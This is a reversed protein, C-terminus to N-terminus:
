CRYRYLMIRFYTECRAKPKLIPNFFNKALKNDRTLIKETYKCHIIKWVGIKIM